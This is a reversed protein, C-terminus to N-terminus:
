GRELQWEALVDAHTVWCRRANSGANSASMEGALRM